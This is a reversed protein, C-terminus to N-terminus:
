ARKPPAGNPFNLNAKGLARAAIDYAAAAVVEDDFDGLHRVTDRNVRIQAYFGGSRRASVGIFKSHRKRGQKAAPAADAVKKENRREFPQVSTRPQPVHEPTLVDVTLATEADIGMALRRRLEAEGVRCTPALVWESIKRTVGWATLQNPDNM